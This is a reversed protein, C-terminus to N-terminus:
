SISIVPIILPLFWSVSLALTPVSGVSGNVCELKLNLCPGGEVGTSSGQNVKRERGGQVPLFNNEKKSM